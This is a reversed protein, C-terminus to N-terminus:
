SYVFCIISTPCLRYFLCIPTKWASRRLGHFRNSRRHWIFAEFNNAYPTQNVPSDKAQRNLAQGPLQLIGVSRELADHGVELTRRWVITRSFPRLSGQMDSLPLRGVTVMKRQVTTDNTRTKCLNSVSETQARQAAWNQTQSDAIWRSRPHLCIRIGNRRRTCTFDIPKGATCNPVPM